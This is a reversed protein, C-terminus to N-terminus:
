RVRAPFLRWDDGRRRVALQYSGAQVRRLDITTQLRTVFDRIEAKGRAAAQSRMDADLLQVDYDGPESGVPLLLTLDLVGNPLEVPDRPDTSQEGRLVAYRRLDVETRLETVQPPRTAPSESPSWPARTFMWAGALTILLVAAAAPVLWRRPPAPDPSDRQGSHGQQLARFERYCPSCEALHEYGPDGLPRARRALGVLVERPPCGIREPNPNARSFVEDIDDDRRVDDTDPPQGSQAM